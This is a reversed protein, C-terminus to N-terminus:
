RRHPQPLRARKKRKQGYALRQDLERFAAEAARPWLALVIKKCEDPHIHFPLGTSLRLIQQLRKQELAGPKLEDRDTHRVVFESPVAHSIEAALRDERRQLTLAVQKINDATVRMGEAKAIQRWTMREVRRQWAVRLALRRLAEDDHASPRGRKGGARLQAARAQVAERIAALEDKRAFSVFHLIQELFVARHFDGYITCLDRFHGHEDHEHAGFASTGSSESMRADYCEQAGAKM